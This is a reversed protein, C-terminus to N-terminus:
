PQGQAGVLPDAAPTVDVEVVEAGDGASTKMFLLGVAYVAAAVYFVNSFGIAMSLVICFISGFVSFFANIAWGWPILHPCTQEVVRIGSPFPM